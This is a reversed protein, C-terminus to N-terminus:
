LAYYVGDINELNYNNDNELIEILKDFRIKPEM